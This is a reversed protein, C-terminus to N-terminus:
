VQAWLDGESPSSPATAQVSIKRGNITAADVPTTPPFTTPKDSIQSWSITRNLTVWAGDVWLEILRDTRNIGVAIDDSPTPRSAADPYTVIRRGHDARRGAINGGSISASGGVVTIVAVAHEWVSDNQTLSPLAGGSSNATGAKVAATVTNASFDLRLVVYDLRTQGSSPAATVTLAKAADNEYYVGRM